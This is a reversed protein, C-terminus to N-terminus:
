VKWRARSAIWAFGGAAALMLPVERDLFVLCSVFYLAFGCLAGAVLSALLGGRRVSLLNRRVQRQQAKGYVISMVFFAIAFLFSWRPLYKYRASPPVDKLSFVQAAGLAIFTGLLFFLRDGLSGPGLFRQRVDYSKEWNTLIWEKM